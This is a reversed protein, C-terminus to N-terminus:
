VTRIADILANVLLADQNFAFDVGVLKDFLWEHKPDNVRAIVRPVRFENKMLMAVSLNCEDTGTLVALVDAKEVGAKRMTELRAGDGTVTSVAPAAKSLEKLSEANTDLVTVKHGEASLRTALYSGAGGGGVIVVYL